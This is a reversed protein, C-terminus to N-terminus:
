PSWIRDMGTGEVLCLRGNAALLRENGYMLSASRLDRFVRELGLPGGHLYGAGMGAIEVLADVAKFSLRSVAIKTNNLRLNYAIDEYREPAAEEAWLRSVEALTSRHLGEALDLTLRVEALQGQLRESGMQSRRCERLWHLTRQYAGRAAGLWAAAWGLQASPILTQQALDRYSAAIVRDAPLWLDFEMPVSRTGRMGMAQWGGTISRGGDEAAVLVMRADSAPADPHARMSVMYVCAEAGYSVVPATRRLRFGAGEVVLPAEARLIDGGKVPETTVSSLLCARRAIHEQWPHMSAGGHRVLVAVQHAHMVWIMATSLCGEGLASAVACCETLNGGIGGLKPPIFYGLLGAERLAALGEEPFRGDADVADAAPALVERAIRRASIVAASAEPPPHMM